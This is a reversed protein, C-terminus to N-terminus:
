GHDRIGISWVVFPEGAETNTCLEDQTQVALDVEQHPIPPQEKNENSSNDEPLALSHDREEQPLMNYFASKFEEIPPREKPEKSWGRHILEKLDSPFDSPIIPKEDM